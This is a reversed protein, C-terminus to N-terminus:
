PNRPKPNPTSHDAPTEVHQRPEVRQRAELLVGRLQVPDLPYPIARHLKFPSLRGKLLRLRSPEAAFVRLISPWRDEAQSLLELGSGDQLRECVILVDYSAPRLLDICHAKSTALDLIFNDALARATADLVEANWDALLARM